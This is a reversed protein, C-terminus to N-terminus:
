SPVSSNLIYTLIQAVLLLTIPPSYFLIATIDDTITMFLQSTMSSMVVTEELSYIDGWEAYRLMAVIARLALRRRDEWVTRRLLRLVLRTWLRLLRRFTEEARLRPLLARRQQDSVKFM